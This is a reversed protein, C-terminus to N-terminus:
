CTALCGTFSLSKLTRRSHARKKMPPSFHQRLFCNSRRTWSGHWGRAWIRPIFRSAACPAGCCIWPQWRMGHETFCASGECLDCKYALGLNPDFGMAGTPCASVCMKCGICLDRHIMVRQLHQDRYIAGKPCVASWPPNECHQCTSPMYFGARADGPIVHIRTRPSERMGQHKASCAKECEMCGTCKLPDVTLLRTTM